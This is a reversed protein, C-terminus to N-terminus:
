CSCFRLCCVCQAFQILRKNPSRTSHLASPVYMTGLVFLAIIGLKQGLRLRLRYVEIVPLTLIILDMIFHTVITGLFFQGSNINCVSDTITKDWISQVPVCRFILMFTRLIMWIVSMVLMVIIPIRIVSQSFLRWYFSLISIKSTALSSAYCLSNFFGLLRAHYLISERTQEDLSDPM